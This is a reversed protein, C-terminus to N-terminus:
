FGMKRISEVSLKEPNSVRDLHRLIYKGILDFEINLEDGTKKNYLTTRKQTEPILNVMFNNKGLNAVTLSVGDLCISGKDIVYAAYKDPLDIKIQRSEGIKSIDIIKLKCDIHGSVFHGGLRGDTRLARELNVHNGIRLHKITTIKTTEQSAEVTFSNKDFGSVTLCPGSVAISEGMAINEFRPEPSITIVRYNGRWSINKIIGISEILGTFM